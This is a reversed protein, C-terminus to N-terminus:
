DALELPLELMNDESSTGPELVPLREGSLGDYFGVRLVVEDLKGEGVPIVQDDVVIEGPQWCTTPWAGRAPYSDRQGVLQGNIVVHRFVTWPWGIPKEAQWYLVTRIGSVPNTAREAQYGLLKIGDEFQASMSHAQAPLTAVVPASRPSYKYRTHIVRLSVAAAFLQISLLAAWAITTWQERKSRGEERFGAVALPLTWPM